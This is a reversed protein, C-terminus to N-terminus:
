CGPHFDRSVYGSQITASGFDAATYNTTYSCTLSASGQANSMSNNMIYGNGIGDIVLNAMAGDIANYAVEGVDTITGNPNWPHEGALLGFGLKNASAYIENDNTVSGALTVPSGGGTDGLKIGAFAFRDTNVITNFRVVCSDGRFVVLGVDTNDEIYNDHVYGEDCRGLTIGDAWKSGEFGNDASVVSYVEYGAGYAELGSGCMANITDVHHVTWGDANLIFNSGHSGAYQGSDPSTCKGSQTRNSRNGDVILESIVFNGGGEDSIGIMNRDLDVHAVLRAKGGVSSLVTTRPKIRLRQNIIYGPNGPELYVADNNDICSQIAASDNTGDTPDAGPCNPSQAYATSAMVVHLITVLAPWINARPVSSSM